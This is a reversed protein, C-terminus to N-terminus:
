KWKDGDDDDESLRLAEGWNKWAGWAFLFCACAVFIRLFGGGEGCLVMLGVLISGIFIFRKFHVMDFAGWSM